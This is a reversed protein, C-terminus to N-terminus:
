GGQILSACKQMKTVDGAAQQICKTYKQVNASSAAGAGSSNTSTGSSSSSTSGGALGAGGFAGSVQQLIGQLKTAFETFPHVSAPVSITQPQNLDAYQLTFGIGASTLGGLVTSAQGSVPVNLNISIKRLTHDSNGTWIDVTPNKIESAIKDRTAQPITTPIAATGAAGSAAAKQLITTFDSLLAAVDVSARIHTTSAGGVTDQGIVSPNKLWHLPRIGFKSLGSAGSTASSGAFSQELKQFDAAPLQYAAGQLTFYANTGTSVIGLQGHHGLASVDINFNSKPLQGKGRSQFPGGLSLSIPGKLTSSGVPSLSLSFNLVGSSVKHAGSFTQQLLTQANGTSSSSSGCAAVALATLAVLAPVIARRVSRIGHHM